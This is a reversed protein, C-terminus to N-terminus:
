RARRSRTAPRPASSPRTRRPATKERKRSSARTERRARPRESRAGRGARHSQGASKGRASSADHAVSTSNRRPATGPCWALTTSRAERAIRTHSSNQLHKRQTPRLQRVPLFSVGTRRATVATPNQYVMASACSLCLAATLKAMNDAAACPAVAAPTIKCLRQCAIHLRVFQGQEVRKRSSRAFRRLAQSAPLRSAFAFLMAWRLRQLINHSRLADASCVRSSALPRNPCECRDSGRSV